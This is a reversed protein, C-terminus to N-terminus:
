SLKGNGVSNRRFEPLYGLMFTRTRDVMENGNWRPSYPYGKQVSHYPKGYAGTHYVSQFTLVPQDRPFTPPLDVHLVFHFDNWEQLISLKTFGEADYELISRGFQSLFASIYERRSQYCKVVQDVKNALLDKVHPVYDSLSNNRPFVPIRLQSAGGIAHEVRPSLYLQPVVKSSVSNQFSILLIAIDEGPDGQILYPPIASLDVPLRILFTIPTEAGLSKRKGAFVELQDYVYTEKLSNYEYLLRPNSELLSEQHEKYKEVLERVVCLLAKTDDANWNVLSKTEELKPCFDKDEQDFIFDPPESPCHCNFIVHWKVSNGAFPITVKFRDCCRVARELTIYSGSRFDSIRVAGGCVGVDGDRLLAEVYNSIHPDLKDLEEEFM